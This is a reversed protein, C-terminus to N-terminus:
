CRKEEICTFCIEKKGVAVTMVKYDYCIDCM